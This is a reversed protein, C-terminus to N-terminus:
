GCTPCALCRVAWATRVGGGRRVHWASLLSALVLIALAVGYGAESVAVYISADLGAAAAAIILAFVVASTTRAGRARWLVAGSAVLLLVLLLPHLVANPVHTLAGLGVARLARTLAPLPPTCAAAAGMGAMGATAVTAGATSAAVMAGMSAMCVVSAAGAVLGGVPAAM